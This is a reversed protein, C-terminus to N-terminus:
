EDKPIEPLPMWHTVHLLKHRTHIRVWSASKPYLSIDKQYYAICIGKESDYVYHALPRINQRCNSCYRNQIEPLKEKVSIWKM